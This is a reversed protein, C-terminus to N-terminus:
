TSAEIFQKFLGHDTEITPLDRVMLEGKLRLWHEFPNAIKSEAYEVARAQDPDELGPFEVPERGLLEGITQAGIEPIELLSRVNLYPFTEAIRSATTPWGVLEIEYPPASERGH